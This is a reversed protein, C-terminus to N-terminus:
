LIVVYRESTGIKLSLTHQLRNTDAPNRLLFKTCTGVNRNQLHRNLTVTYLGVSRGWWLSTSQGNGGGSTSEENESILVELTWGFKKALM